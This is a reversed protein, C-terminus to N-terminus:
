PRPLQGGDGTGRPAPRRHGPARRRRRDTGHSGGRHPEAFSIVHFVTFTGASSPPTLGPPPDAHDPGHPLQGAERELLRPGLAQNDVLHPVALPPSLEPRAGDVPRHTTAGYDPEVDPRFRTTRECGRHGSEVLHPVATSQRGARRPRFGSRMIMRSCTYHDVM